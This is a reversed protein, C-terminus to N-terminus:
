LLKQATVIPIFFSMGDVYEGNVDRVKFTMIGVVKGDETIVPGGSSGKSIEINTQLFTNLSDNYEIQKAKASLIGVNCSLGYNNLNGITYLTEGISIKDSNGPELGQIDDFM